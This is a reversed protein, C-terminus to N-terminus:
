LPWLPRGCVRAEVAAIATERKNLRFEANIIAEEVDGMRAERVRRDDNLRLVQLRDMLWSSSCTLARGRVGCSSHGACKSRPTSSSNTPCSSPHHRRALTPWTRNSGVEGRSNSGMVACNAAGRAHSSVTPPPLCSSPSCKCPTTYGSSSPPPSPYRPQHHPSHPRHM